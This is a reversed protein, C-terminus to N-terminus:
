VMYINSLHSIDIYVKEFIDNLLIQISLKGTWQLNHKKLNDVWYQLSTGQDDFGTWKYDKDYPCIIIINTYKKKIELLLNLRFNVFSRSSNAFFIISM